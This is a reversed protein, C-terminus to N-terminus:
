NIRRIIEKLVYVYKLDQDLQVCVQPDTLLLFLQYEQICPNTWITHTSIIYKCMVTHTHILICYM